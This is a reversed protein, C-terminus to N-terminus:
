RPNPHIHVEQAVIQNAPKVQQGPRFSQVVNDAIGDATIQQAGGEMVVMLEQAATLKGALFGLKESVALMNKLRSRTKRDEKSIAELEEHLIRMGDEVRKQAVLARGRQIRITGLQHMHAGLNALDRLATNSIEVFGQRKMAALAEDDTITPEEIAVPVTPPKAIVPMESM